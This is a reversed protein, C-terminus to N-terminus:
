ASILLRYTNVNNQMWDKKDFYALVRARANKGLADALSENNIIRLIKESIDGPQYPDCLLGSIGDEITEPGSALKTYVVASGVAMAELPGMAFAESFSPFVCVNAQRMQRLIEAQEVHGGFEVRSQFEEQVFGRLMQIYKNSSFKGLLRIKAVPSKQFVENMSILLPEVGKKPNISNVFLILGKEKPLQEDPCFFETDVANHIVSFDRKLNAAELEKEATYKSVFVLRNAHALTQREFYYIIRSARRKKVEADFYAASGHGRCLVPVGRIGWPLMGEYDPAEILDFRNKQHERSIWARLRLRDLIYGPQPPIYRPSAPLRIVKVGNMWGIEPVSLSLVSPSYVGIVTVDIGNQVLGQALDRSVTGIGGHRSPPYENCIICLRM